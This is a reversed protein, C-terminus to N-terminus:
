FSDVASLYRDVFCLFSWLGEKSALRIVVDLSEVRGSLWLM